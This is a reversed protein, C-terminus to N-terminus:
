ITLNWDVSSVLSLLLLPSDLTIITLFILKSVVPVNQNYKKINAKPYHFQHNTRGYELQHLLLGSTYHTACTFQKYFM